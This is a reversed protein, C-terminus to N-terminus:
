RKPKRSRSSGTRSTSYIKGGLNRKTTEGKRPLRMGRQSRPTASVSGRMQEAGRIKGASQGAISHYEDTAQKDSINRKARKLRSHTRAKVLNPKKAEEVQRRTRETREKLGARDSERQAARDVRAQEKPTRGQTALRNKRTAGARRAAASRAESAAKSSINPAPAKAKKGMDRIASKVAPPLDDAKDIAKGLTRAGKPATKALGGKLLLKALPTAVLRAAGIGLLLLPIPM